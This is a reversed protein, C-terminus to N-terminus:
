SEIETIVDIEAKIEPNNKQLEGRKVILLDVQKDDGWVGADTLLDQAGTVYNDLDRARKDKFHMTLKLCLREGQNFRQKIQPKITWLAVEKWSRYKSSSILQRSNRARILRQNASVAMPFVLLM